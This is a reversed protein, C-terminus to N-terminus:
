HSSRKKNKRYPIIVENQSGEGVMTLHPSDYVRGKANWDMGYGQQGFTTNTRRLGEGLMAEATKSFDVDPAEVGGGLLADVLPGM